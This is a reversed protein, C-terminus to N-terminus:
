QKENGLASTIGGLRKQQIDALKYGRRSFEDFIQGAKESDKLALYVEMLGLEDDPHPFLDKAFQYYRIAGSYQKRKQFIDGLFRYCSALDFTSMYRDEREVASQYIAVLRDNVQRSGLTDRILPELYWLVLYHVPYDAYRKELEKLLEGNVANNIDLQNHILRVIYAPNRKNLSAAIEFHRNAEKYEKLFRLTYGYQTHSRASAPHHQVTTRFLVLEDQWYYSRAYTAAGFLMVVLVLLAQQLKHRSFVGPLPYTIYYAFPLILGWSPMYNRHEHILELPIISSEICHGLLFWAVGLSAVPARRRLWVIAVVLVAVGFIAPLTTVPDLLGHSLPFDDHFLGMKRLDPVLVLGIYFWIARAQTLLREAMTFDRIQYGDLNLLREAMFLGTIGVLIVPLLIAAYWLRMFRRRQNPECKFRFVLLELLIIFAPLLVGIEKSAIALPTMVYYSVLMALYGKSQGQILRLRGLCYLALGWIMFLAALSTMRQVIYLVPGLNVPHLVWALSVGLSLFAIEGQSLPRSLKKTSLYALLKTTLLMLGIGCLFHIALNTLKFQLPNLGGAYRNLGFSIMALPRNLSHGDRARAAANLNDFTLEEFKLQPPLIVNSLDDFVFPGGLGPRYVLILLLPALICFVWLPHRTALAALRSVHISM